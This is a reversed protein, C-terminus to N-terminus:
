MSHVLGAVPVTTLVQLHYILLRSHLILYAHPSVANGECGSLHRPESGTPRLQLGFSANRGCEQSISISHTWPGCKSFRWDLVFTCECLGLVGLNVFEVVSVGGQLYFPGLPAILLKGERDLRPSLLHCGPLTSGPRAPGQQKGKTLAIRGALM